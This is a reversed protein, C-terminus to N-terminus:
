KIRHNVCIMRTPELHSPITQCKRSYYKQDQYVSYTKKIVRQGDNNMRKYVILM